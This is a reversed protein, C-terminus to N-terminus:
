RRATSRTSSSRASGQRGKQGAAPRGARANRNPNALNLFRRYWAASSAFLAAGVPGFALASVVVPDAPSGGILVRGAPSVVIASYCVAAVIGQALGGLWSARRATFGILFAGAAPPPAVFLSVVLYSINTTSSITIGETPNPKTLDLSAGIENTAAIFVATAIVSVAVAVLVAWHTLVRPAAALDARLDLPRFANRFAATISPRAPRSPSATRTQRTEPMPQEADSADTDGESAALRAAQEARYRRRAENRDTRKARALPFGGTDATVALHPLHPRRM